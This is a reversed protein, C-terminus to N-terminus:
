AGLQAAEARTMLSRALEHSIEILEYEMGHEVMAALLGGSREAYYSPVARIVESMIRAQELFEPKTRYDRGGVRVLIWQGIPAAESYAHTMEEFSSECGFYTLGSYGAEIAFWDASNASTPGGDPKSLTSVQAGSLAGFMDPACDIALVARKIRGLPFLWRCLKAADVTYFTADIGHNLCWNIAGNVAWIEGGWQKLEDIHRNISPGGGVVALRGAGRHAPLGLAKNTIANADRVENSVSAFFAFTVSM